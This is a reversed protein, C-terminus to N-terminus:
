KLISRYLNEFFFNKLLPWFNPWIAKIHGKQGQFYMWWWYNISFTTWEFKLWILSTTGVHHWTVSLVVFWEIKTSTKDSLTSSGDRFGKKALGEGFGIWLNAMFPNHSLVELSDILPENQLEPNTCEGPLRSISLIKKCKLKGQLTTWSYAFREHILFQPLYLDTKMM